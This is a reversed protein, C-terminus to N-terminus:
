ENYIVLGKEILTNFVFNFHIKDVKINERKHEILSILDEKNINSDINLLIHISSGLELFELDEKYNNFFSLFNLFSAEMVSDEFQIEDYSKIDNIQFGDNALESSYPGYLYVRFDYGLELKWMKLFYVFKQLKFRNEFTTMDFNPYVRKLLGALVRSNM